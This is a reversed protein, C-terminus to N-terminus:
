EGDRGRNVYNGVNPGIVPQTQSRVGTLVGFM